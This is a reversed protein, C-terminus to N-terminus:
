GNEGQDMRGGAEIGGIISEGVTQRKRARTTKKTAPKSIRQEKM